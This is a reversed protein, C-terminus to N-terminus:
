LQWRRDVAEAARGGSSATLPGMRYGFPPCFNNMPM